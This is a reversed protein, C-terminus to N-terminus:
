ISLPKLKKYTEKVFLYNVNSKVRTAVCYANTIDVLIPSTLDFLNIVSWHDACIHTIEKNNVCKTKRVVVSCPWWLPFSLHRRLQEPVKKLQNSPAECCKWYNKSKVSALCLIKHGFKLTGLHKLWQYLRRQHTQKFYLGNQFTNRPGRVNAM